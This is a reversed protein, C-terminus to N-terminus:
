IDTWKVEGQGNKAYYEKEEVDVLKIINCPVPPGVHGAASLLCNCILISSYSNILRPTM